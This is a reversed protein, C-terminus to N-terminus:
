AKLWGCDQLPLGAVVVLSKLPRGVFRNGAHVAVIYCVWKAAQPAPLDPRPYFFKSGLQLFYVLFAYLM